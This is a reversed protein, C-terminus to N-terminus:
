GRLLSALFTQTDDPGELGPGAPSVLFGGGAPAAFFLATDQNAKFLRSGRQNQGLVLGSGPFLPTGSERDDAM